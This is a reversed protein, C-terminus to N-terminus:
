VHTIRCYDCEPDSCHRLIHRYPAPKSKVIKQNTDFIDCYKRRIFFFSPIISRSKFEDENYGVPDLERVMCLGWIRKVPPRTSSPRPSGIVKRIHYLENVLRRFAKDIQAFDQATGYIDVGCKSGQTLWRRVDLSLESWGRSDFYNGVEDMLVDCNELEVLEELDKWYQVPIGYTEALLHFSSSLQINSAIPRVVGSSLFWKYNRELLDKAKMALRLSKGSSELGSYVIKGM